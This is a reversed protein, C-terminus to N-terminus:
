NGHDDFPYKGKTEDGDGPNHQALEADDEIVGGSDEGAQEARRQETERDQEQVPPTGIFRLELGPHHASQEDVVQGARGDQQEGLGGAQHVDLAPADDTQM